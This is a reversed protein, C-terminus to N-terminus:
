LRQFLFRRFSRGCGSCFPSLGDQRVVNVCTDLCETADAFQFEGLAGDARRRLFATARRTPCPKPVHGFRAAWSARWSAHSGSSLRSLQAGRVTLVSREWACLRISCDLLVASPWAQRCNLLDYCLVYVVCCHIALKASPQFATAVPLSFAKSQALLARMVASVEECEGLARKAPKGGGQRTAQIDKSSHNGGIPM